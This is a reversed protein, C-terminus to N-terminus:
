ARGLGEELSRAERAIRVLTEDDAASSDVLLRHVQATDRGSVAVVEAVVAEASAGAPLALRTALRRRTALQVSALARSRDQAERYLRGRSTTTEIARVVVPLPETTVPGLRRGRVISWAALAAVIVAMSPLLPEPLVDFLGQPPTEGADGLNPIVWVLRPSAGLLRLGTAANAQATIHENTLAVALGAVVIRPTQTTSALQVLHGERAGGANFGPSPPLCTTVEQRTLQTGVRLRAGARSVEEGNNWLDLDCEPSMPTPTPRDTVDVDVDLTQRLNDAPALVVVSSASRAYRMVAKGSDASLYDTNAILVTAGAASGEPLSSVGRVIDVQVGQQSLVQALAQMGEGEPNEPDLPRTSSGSLGILVTIVATLALVVVTWIVLRRTVPRTRALDPEAPGSRRVPAPAVTSSM